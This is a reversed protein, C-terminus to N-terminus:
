MYIVYGSIDVNKPLPHGKKLTNRGRELIDDLFDEFESDDSELLSPLFGNSKSTSAAASMVMIGDQADEEGEGEAFGEDNGLPVTTNSTEAASVYEEEPTRSKETVLSEFNEESPSGEHTSCSKPILKGGAFLNIFVM